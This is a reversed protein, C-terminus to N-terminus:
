PLAAASIKGSTKKSSDSGAVAVRSDSAVNPTAYAALGTPASNRPCKPSLTPRLFIMTKVSIRIPSEVNRMPQRGVRSWTPVSAGTSRTIQRTRCPMEAAPSCALAFEMDSSCAGAFLRPKKVLKVSLPVWPPWSRAVSTNMGTAASGSSWSSEQPQRTGNQILM